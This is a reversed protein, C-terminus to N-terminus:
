FMGGSRRLGGSSKVQSEKLAEAEKLKTIEADENALERKLGAEQM